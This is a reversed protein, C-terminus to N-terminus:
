TRGPRHASPIRVEFRAGGQLRNAATITGGFGRVITRAIALGLGTHARATQPEAPRYSFFREFVRELHAAPIGPGRDAVSICCDGSAERTVSVDVTTGAPAFSRANALVNEFVQVLRDSSARVTTPEGVINLVIAAGDPDALRMGEVVQHLQRGVDVTELPEQELQTDIRALERVGSVLRELRDVDRTLLDLFRTRTEVDDAQAVMEAASRISALPNRFEHSVDGAFQEVTRIHDDLRRTLEGLSRALDGIEDSRSADEFHGPLRSRREALDSAERRLRALPRVVTAAAVATLAAAAFISALVVEFIRLRVEYLAALVRYTTQSVLVAGVVAKGRRIPVASNLTLSRQGPTPRTAAGYKGALALAVEPPLQSESEGETGATTRDSAPRLPAVARSSWEVLIRRSAALWAGLRYIVRARIGPSAPPYASASSSLTSDGLFRIRSSDAIMAGDARYIRLRADGRELRQLLDVADAPELADRQSAAAALLRGQQVMSREQADLLRTEYVDLYLIGAVPLFLLLLNFAFLRVGIRSLRAVPRARAAM